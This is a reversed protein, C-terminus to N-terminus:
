SLGNAKTPTQVGAFLWVGVGAEYSAQPSVKNNLCGSVRLTLPCGSLSARLFSLVFPLPLPRVKEKSVLDFDFEVV